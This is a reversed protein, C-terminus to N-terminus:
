WFRGAPLNTGCACRGQVCGRLQDKVHMSGCDECQILELENYRHYVSKYKFTNPHKVFKKERRIDFFWVGRRWDGQFQQWESAYESDTLYDHPPIWTFISDCLPCRAQWPRDIGTEREETWTFNLDKAGAPPTKKGTVIARPRRGSPKAFIQTQAFCYDCVPAIVPATAPTPLGGFLKQTLWRWM